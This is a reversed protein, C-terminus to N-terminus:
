KKKNPKKFFLIASNNVCQIVQLNKKYNNLLFEGCEIKNPYERIFKGDILLNVPEESYDFAPDEFVLPRPSNNVIFQGIINKTDISQIVINDGNYKTKMDEKLQKVAEPDNYVEEISDLRGNIIINFSKMDKVEEVTEEMDEDERNILSTKPIYPAAITERKPKESEKKEADEVAAFLAKDLDDMEDFNVKEKETDVTELNELLPNIEVIHTDDVSVIEIPYIDEAYNAKEILQFYDIIVKALGLGITSSNDYILNIDYESVYFFVQIEIKPNDLKNAYNLEEYVNLSPLKIGKQIFTNQFSDRFSYALNKSHPNENFDQPKILIKQSFPLIDAVFSIELDDYDTGADLLTPNKLKIFETSMVRCLEKLEDKNSLISIRM